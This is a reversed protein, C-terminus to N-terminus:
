RRCVVRGGAEPYRARLGCAMGRRSGRSDQALGPARVQMHATAQEPLSAPRRKAPRAVVMEGALSAVNGPEEIRCYVTPFNPDIDEDIADGTGPLRLDAFRERGLDPMGEGSLAPSGLMIMGNGFTPQAHAITGGEDPAVLYREFGSVHCLWDVAAPAMSIAGAPPTTSM